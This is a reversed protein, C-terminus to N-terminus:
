IRVKHLQGTIRSAKSERAPLSFDQLSTDYTFLSTM